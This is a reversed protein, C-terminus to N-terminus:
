RSLAGRVKNPNESRWDDYDCVDNSRRVVNGTTMRDHHKCVVRNRLFVIPFFFSLCFGLFFAGAGASVPGKM